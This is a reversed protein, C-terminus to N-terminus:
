LQKDIVQWRTQPLETTCWTLFEEYNPKHEPLFYVYPFSPLYPYTGWRWSPRENWMKYWWSKKDYEAWEIEDQKKLEEYAKLKVEFEKQDREMERRAYEAMKKNQERIPKNLVDLYDLYKKWMELDTMKM